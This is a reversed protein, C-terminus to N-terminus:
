IYNSARVRTNGFVTTAMLSMKAWVDCPEALTTFAGDDVVGVNVFEVEHCEEPILGPFTSAALAADLKTVLGAEAFETHIKRTVTSLALTAIAGTM